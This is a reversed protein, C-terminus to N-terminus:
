QSPLPLAQLEELDLRALRVTAELDEVHRRRESGDAREALRKLLERATEIEPEWEDRPVGELRMLWTLYFKAHALAGEAEAVLDPDPPPKRERLEEVLSELQEHAAPLQRIMMQVKARGLVIRWRLEQQGEPLRDLARSYQQFAEAWQESAALREADATLTAVEDLIMREQGPGFHYAVGLLPLMLWVILLCQRM